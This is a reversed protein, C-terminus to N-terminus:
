REAALRPVQAALPRCLRPSLMLAATASVSVRIPMSQSRPILRRSWCPRPSRPLHVPEDQASAVLTIAGMVAARVVSPSPRAIVAWSCRAIPGRCGRILRHRARFRRRAGTLVALNVRSVALLHTPGAARFDEDVETLAGTGISLSPLLGAEAAGHRRGHYAGSRLAGALSQWWPPTGVEL